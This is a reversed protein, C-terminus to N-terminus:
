GASTLHAPLGQNPSPFVCGLLEEAGARAWLSICLEKPSAGALGALRACM